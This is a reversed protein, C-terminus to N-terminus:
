LKIEKNLNFSYIVKEKVKKEFIKEVAKAYISLQESYAEKLEDAKEVRDTKFDLLVIEGNEIFCLDVAGQIIIKEDELHENKIQAFKNASEETIFRMERKVLDANKIRKFLDSAFFKKIAEVDVAERQAESIFQWEYLRDLEAEVNNANELDFHEMVKLKFAYGAQDCGIAIM